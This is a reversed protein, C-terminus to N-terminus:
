ILETGITKNYKSIMLYNIFGLQLDKPQKILLSEGFTFISFVSFFINTVSM